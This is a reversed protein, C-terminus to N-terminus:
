LIFFFRENGNSFLVFNELVIIKVRVLLLYIDWIGIDDNISKVM